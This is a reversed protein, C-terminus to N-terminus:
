NFIEITINPVVNMGNIELQYQQSTSESVWLTMENTKGDAVAEFQGSGAHFRFLTYAAHNPTGSMTLMFPSGPGAFTPTRGRDTTITAITSM